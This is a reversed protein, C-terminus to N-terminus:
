FEINAGLNYYSTNHDGAASVWEAELTTRGNEGGLRVGAGLGFAFATDDSKIFEGSDMKSDLSSFIGGLKGKFYITGPSRYNFFVGVTSLDYDGAGMGSSTDIDASSSAGLELEISSSGNDGVPRSFEYGFNFTAMTSDEYGPLDVTVAGLKVGALWKGDAVEGFWTTQSDALAASGTSLLALGLLGGFASRLFKQSSKSQTM